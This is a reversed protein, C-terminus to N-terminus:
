IYVWKSDIYDDLVADEDFYQEADPIVTVIMEKIQKNRRM